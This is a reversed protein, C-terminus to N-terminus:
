EINKNTKKSHVPSWRSRGTSVCEKGVRREESRTAHAVDPEPGGFDARHHRKQACTLDGPGDRHGLGPAVIERQAARGGVGALRDVDGGALGADIERLDSSCVAASWDSIRM